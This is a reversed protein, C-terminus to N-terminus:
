AFKKRRRWWGLLGGGAFILGPLGAGAIPGPVGVPSFTPSVDSILFPVAFGHIVTLQAGNAAGKELGFLIPNPASFVASFDASSISGSSVTFANGQFDSPPIPFPPPTLGFAAPASTIIVASVMQNAMNDVLGDIEGMVTGPTNGPTTGGPNTNSFSFDFTLAHGPTSALALASAFAFAGLTSSKM